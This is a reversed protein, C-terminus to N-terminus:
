VNYKKTDILVDIEEQTLVTTISYTKTITMDGDYKSYLKYFHVCNELTGSSLKDAKINPYLNGEKDRSKQGWLTYVTEEKNLKEFNPIENFKNIKM